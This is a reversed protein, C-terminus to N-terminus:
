WSGIQGERGGRSNLKIMVVLLVLLRMTAWPCHLSLRVSDMCRKQGCLELGHPFVAVSGGSCNHECFGQRGSLAGEQQTWPICMFDWSGSIGPPLAAGDWLTMAVCSSAGVEQDTGWSGPGRYAGAACSGILLCCTGKRSAEFCAM